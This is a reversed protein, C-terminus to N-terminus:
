NATLGTAKFAGANLAAILAATNTTPIGFAALGAAIETLSAALMASYGAVGELLAASAPVGSAGTISTVSAAMRVETTPGTIVFEKTKADLTVGIRAGTEAPGVSIYVRDDDPFAEIDFTYVPVGDANLKAHRFVMRNPDATIPNSAFFAPDLPKRNRVGPWVCPQDPDGDLFGIVVVDGRIKVNGDGDYEWARPGREAGDAPGGFGWLYTVSAESWMNGNRDCLVKETGYLQFQGSTLSSVITRGPPRPPKRPITPDNNM